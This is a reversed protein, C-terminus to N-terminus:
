VSDHSGGQAFREFKRSVIAMLDPIGTLYWYTDTVKTHGVYTSLALIAHDVNIGQQYWQQVRHCIFSHRLDHIRPLPHDGRAVWGLQSRLRQFVGHVTTKKLGVGRTSVFFRDCINAVAQDRAGTYKRLMRATTPHTPVLRSKQFKTQRITLTGSGLDVDSRGLNLAESFRLGTAAILGFLCSYTLPRLTGTPGLKKASSLLGRIEVESYIHPVLRRHSRGFLHRDPIESAPDFKKCFKAFPRIIEIRRPWTVLSRPPSSRVWSVVLAKTIPGQHGSQDAFRAFALLQSGAIELSFGLRRRDSLYRQVLHSMSPLPAIPHSM